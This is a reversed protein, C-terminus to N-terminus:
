YFPHNKSQYEKQRKELDRRHSWAGLGIAAVMLLFWLVCGALALCYITV